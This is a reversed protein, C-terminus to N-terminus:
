AADVPLRGPKCPPVALINGACGLGAVCGFANTLSAPVMDAPRWLFTNPSAKRNALAKTPLNRDGGIENRPARIRPPPVGHMGRGQPKVEMM